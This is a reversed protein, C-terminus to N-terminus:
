LEGDEKPDLHRSMGILPETVVVMLWWRLLLLVLMEILKLDAAIMDVGTLYEDAVGSGCDVMM